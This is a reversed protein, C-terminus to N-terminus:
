RQRPSCFATLCSAARMYRTAVLRIGRVCLFAVGPWPHIPAHTGAQAPVVSLPSLSACKRSHRHCVIGVRASSSM